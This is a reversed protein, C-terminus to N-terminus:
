FLQDWLPNFKWAGLESGAEVYCTLGVCHTVHYGFGAGALSAPDSSSQTVNAFLNCYAGCVCNVFSGDFSFM